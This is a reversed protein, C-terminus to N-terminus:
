DGLLAKLLDEIGGKPAEDKIESDEEVEEIDEDFDEDMDDDFDDDDFDKFQIGTQQVPEIEVEDDVEIEQRKLLESPASLSSNQQVSTINVNRAYDSVSENEENTTTTKTVNININTTTVNKSAFVIDQTNNRIPVGGPTNLSRTISSVPNVRPRGRGRKEHDAKEDQEEVIKRPRGRGRKEGEDVVEIEDVEKRPRGRGRKEEISVENQDVGVEENQTASIEEIDQIVTNSNKDSMESSTTHTRTTGYSASNTEKGSFINRINSKFLDYDADFTEDDEDILKNAILNEVFDNQKSSEERPGILNDLSETAEADFDNPINFKTKDDTVEIVTEQINQNDAVIEIKKLTLTDKRPRGRGRKEGIEVVANEDVPKRPRGRGRKETVVIESEDVIKRPRGRGRKEGIVEIEGEPREKRPRGRGRKEGIEVVANEDVPKRPRGRGRRETEVVEVMSVEDEVQHLLGAEREEETIEREVKVYRVQEADSKRNQRKLYNNYAEVMAVHVMDYAEIYEPRFEDLNDTIVSEDMQMAEEINKGIINDTMLSTIAIANPNGFARFKAEEIIGDIVRWTLEIVLGDDDEGVRGIADPKMVRGSHKANYFLELIKRSCSKM